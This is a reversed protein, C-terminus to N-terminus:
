LVRRRSLQYLADLTNGCMREESLESVRMRGAQALTEMERPHQLAYRIAEALAGADKAPYLLGHVRDEVVEPIGSADSSVVPAGHAMAEVLAFSAGGEFHTPFVFLDAALYFQALDARYGLLLVRDQLGADQIQRQLSERLDGDGIWLFRIDPFEAALEPVATLLDGYGKQVHLRAVTVLLRCDPAIGLEQRLRRQIIKREAEDVLDVPPPIKVGNRIICVAEDGVHFTQTLNRQGDRSNVVWLQQRKRAWQYARLTKGLVTAPWPVLQFSVM